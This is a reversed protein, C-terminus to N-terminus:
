KKKYVINFKHLAKTRTCVTIYLNTLNSAALIYINPLYTSPVWWKFSNQGSTNLEYFEINKAAHGFIPSSNGFFVVTTRTKDMGRLYLHMLFFTKVTLWFVFLCFIYIYTSSLYLTQLSYLCNKKAKKTLYNYSPLTYM